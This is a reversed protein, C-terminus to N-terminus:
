VFDKLDCNPLHKEGAESLCFWCGPVNDEWVMSETAVRKLLSKMDKVNDEYYKVAAKCVANVARRQQKAPITEIGFLLQALLEALPHHPKVKM